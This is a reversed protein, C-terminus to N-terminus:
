QDNNLAALIEDPDDGNGECHEEFLSWNAEIFERARMLEYELM